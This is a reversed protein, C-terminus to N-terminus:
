VVKYTGGCSRLGDFPEMEKLNLFIADVFELISAKLDSYSLVRVEFYCFGLILHVGAHHPLRLRYVAPHLSHVSCTAPSQVAFLLFLASIQLLFSSRQNRRNKLHEFKLEPEITKSRTYTFDM